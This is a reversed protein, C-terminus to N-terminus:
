EAYRDADFPLYSRMGAAEADNECDHGATEEVAWDLRLYGSEVERGDCYESDCRVDWTGTAPVFTFTLEPTVTTSAM